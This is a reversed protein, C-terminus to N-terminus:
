FKKMFRKSIKFSKKAPHRYRKLRRKEPPDRVELSALSRSRDNPMPLLVKTGTKLFAKTSMSNLDAIPDVKIGFHRAIRSLTEGRKVKYTLFRVDRPFAAHNYNSLFKDKVSAPLKIRYSSVTPPTCWRVLEPNLSKVTQYSLEAAHAVKLLDAPSQVEFELLEVGSIEGKKSVHPTPIPKALPQDMTQNSALSLPANELDPSLVDTVILSEEQQLLSEVTESSLLPTEPKIESEKELKVVNGDGAVAEDAAPKVASLAFGFQTPNKAILAAAIIKPVYNRTESKLFRYKVISWFDKTKYRRIAKAIKAEGANYAATALEWSQFMQYLDKLYEVAALTSKRTNRREDVWWNVMLGYRKGTPAIFQWPGVAKARSRAHNHFGSEIMALYVLDEPLGNQKLLPRIYPIFLTSRDLYKEFHKRGKGQFYDIWSEVQKNITIPIDFQTNQLKIGKVIIEQPTSNLNYADLFQNQPGQPGANGSLTLEETQSSSVRRHACSSLIMGSVLVLTILLDPRM